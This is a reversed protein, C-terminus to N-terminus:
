DFLFHDLISSSTSPKNLSAGPKKLKPKAGLSIKPRKPDPFVEAKKHGGMGDYFVEENMMVQLSEEPKSSLRSKQFISFSKKHFGRSDIKLQSQSMESMPLRKPTEDELTPDSLVPRPPSKVPAEAELRESFKFNESLETEIVSNEVDPSKIVKRFKALLGEPAPSETLLRLVETATSENSPGNKVFAALADLASNHGESDHILNLYKGWQKFKKELRGREEVAHSLEEKLMQEEKMKEKYAEKLSDREAYARSLNNSYEKMREQMLKKKEVMGQLERKLASCYTALSRSETSSGVLSSLLEDVESVTGNRITQLGELTSLQGQLAKNEEKLEEIRQNQVKLNRIQGKLSLIASNATALKEEVDRVEGRLAKNKSTLDSNAEKLNKIDIEKLKVQFKINDIKNQLSSPDDAGDINAVNFYVRHISKESTKSRCQPCTKARELWQIVCNYHFLHGCNTVFTDDSATILDSCIVCTIHM